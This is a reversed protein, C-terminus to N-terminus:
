YHIIKSNIKLLDLLLSSFHPPDENGRKGGRFSFFFGRCAEKHLYKQKWKIRIGKLNQRNKLKHQKYKCPLSLVGDIYYYYHYTTPALIIFTRADKLYALFKEPIYLSLVLCHGIFLHVNVNTICLIIGKQLKINITSVNYCEVLGWNLM